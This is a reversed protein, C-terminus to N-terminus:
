KKALKLEINVTANDSLIISSGGVGFDRRNIAFSGKIIAANSNEEFTFPIVVDKTINKITLKFYGKFSGDPQKSFTSANLSIRPFKEASFYEEKKLHKDRSGNDTNITKADISSEISNSYSKAADFHIKTELGGFDGDVTFGANKIKFKVSSSTVTWETNQASSIITILFFALILKIKKM